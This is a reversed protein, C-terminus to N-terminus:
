KKKQPNYVRASPKVPYKARILDNGQGLINAHATLKDSESAVFSEYVDIGEKALETVAANPLFPNFREMAYIRAWYTVEDQDGSLNTENTESPIETVVKVLDGTRCTFPNVTFSFKENTTDGIINGISSKIEEM